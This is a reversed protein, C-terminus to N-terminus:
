ERGFILMERNIPSIMKFGQELYLEVVEWEAMEGQYWHRPIVIYDVAPDYEQQHHYFLDYVYPHDALEVTSNSNTLIVAEKDLSRLEQRIKQFHLKNQAYDTFRYSQPWYNTMTFAYSAGFALTLLWRIVHHKRQFQQSLVDVGLILMWLILTFSGYAYQKGLDIQYPYDSLLNIVLLPLLLLYTTWNMQIFLMGVTSIVVIILFIIKTPKMLNHLTFSPNMLANKVVAGLGSQEPLMFNKFRSTMAGDGYQNLWLICGSFYIIPLLVMVLILFRRYATSFEFKDQLIFYLGLSLVYIMADEKVGLTLLTFLLVGWRKQSIVCYILSLLLPPLLANEHFDYLHGTLMGPLVIYLALLLFRTTQKFEFQKLILYLPILGLLTLVVQMLNLTEPRPFMAFIPALLYLSPSVHVKFHSLFGDRELTTVPGAGRVMNHFLQTFIGMDYNFSSVMFIRLVLIGSVFCLIFTLLLVTIYKFGKLSIRQAILLTLTVSVFIILWMSFSFYLQESLNFSFVSHESYWGIIVLKIITEVILCGYLLYDYKYNSSRSLYFHILFPLLFILYGILIAPEFIFVILVNFIVFMLFSFLSFSGSPWVREVHYTILAGIATILVLVTMSLPANLQTILQSSSSFILSLLIYLLYGELLYKLFSPFLRDLNLM